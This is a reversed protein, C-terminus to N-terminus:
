CISVSSPIFPAWRTHNLETSKNSQNRNVPTVASHQSYKIISKFIFSEATNWLELYIMKSLNQSSKVETLKVSPAPDMEKCLYNNFLYRAKCRARSNSASTRQLILWVPSTQRPTTDAFLLLFIFIKPQSHGSLGQLNLCLSSFFQMFWATRQLKVTSANIIWPLGSTSSPSGTSLFCTLIFVCHEM